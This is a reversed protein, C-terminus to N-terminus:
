WGNALKQLYRERLGHGNEIVRMAHLGNDSCRLDQHCGLPSFLRSVDHWNRMNELRAQINEPSVNDGLNGVLGHGCLCEGNRGTCSGNVTLPGGYGPLCQKGNAYNNDYDDNSGPKMVAYYRTELPHGTGQLFHQAYYAELRWTTRPGSRDTPIGLVENIDIGGFVFQDCNPNLTSTNGCEPYERTLIIQNPLMSLAYRQLIGDPRSTKTFSNHYELEGPILPTPGILTEYGFWAFKGGQYPDYELSSLWPFKQRIEAEATSDEWPNTTSWGAWFEHKVHANVRCSTEPDTSNQPGHQSCLAFQMFGSPYLASPRNYFARSCKGAAWLDPRCWFGLTWSADYGVEGALNDIFRAGNLVFQERMWGGTHVVLSSGQDTDYFYTGKSLRLGTSDRWLVRSFIDARLEMHNPEDSYCETLGTCHQSIQYINCRNNMIEGQGFGVQATFFVGNPIVLNCEEQPYPNKAKWFFMHHSVRKGRYTISVRMSKSGPHKEDDSLIVHGKPQYIVIRPNFEAVNLAIYDDARENQYLKEDTMKLLLAGPGTRVLETIDFQQVGPENKRIEFSHGFTVYPLGPFRNSSDDCISIGDRLNDDAICDWTTRSLNFGNLAPKEISLKTNRSASVSVELYASYVPNEPWFDVLSDVDFRAVWRTPDGSLIREIGNPENPVLESPSRSDIIRHEIIPIFFRQDEVANRQGLVKRGFAYHLFVLM